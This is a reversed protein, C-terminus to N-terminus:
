ERVIEIGSVVPMAAEGAPRTRPLLELVLSDAAEVGKLERVLARAAGGSEKFIDFNTLVDRGQLKVDFVRRGAKDNESEAFLLRVTYRASPAGAEALPIACRALGRAGCAFLWPDATGAFRAFDVDRCFWGGGDALKADFKLDLVLRETVIPRPYALWLTGDSARRDGPAGFNVALRRVPLAPGPASFMSWTRGTKKPAFAITTHVAFPCMCGSAAEPMLVLGCAPICNIWCGPRQAGFHATGSDDALDYYATSGSRFFLAGPAAGINGCHHGPRAMQWQDTVGTIPNRRERQAGTRLDYAWPEAIIQNEVILPRSRYGKRDSWLMRGDDAALAILSRRSFAGALFEKWFHGNWPQACLLLVGDAYMATLQGGASGITVCDSVYLPREWAKRGSQADLAVALRVDPKVPRGASDRRNESPVEKLAQEVQQPTAQQDVFFVRGAGIAITIPQISTGDHTWRVKGSDLEVAFIRQPGVTGYLLGGACALYHWSQQTGDAARPAKYSRVTRGTAADLRHVQDGVAVFLSDDSAALNSAQTKLGTRLAGPMQREWLFLGNYADYAMVVNEGQVFLRGGAALPSAASAHRSVMRGPGPEGFWLIGVPGRVRRDDSCATNGPEAYEHTWAGAGPLPGRAVKTWSDAAAAVTTAKDAAADLAKRVAAQQDPRLAGGQGAAGVNLCAVGGCPKLMRLLEEPALAPGGAQCAILNAFYDPYPLNKIDAQTVVVRAGYLGAASLAKRAAAAKEGDPEAVHIELETRRALEAALRVADPGLVLGYGRSAGAERVIREAARALAETQADKPFAEAAAAPAAQRGKGGKGQIFCHIAGSDTSVFLRGGAVAPGRAKGRVPASWTQKGDAPDLGVVVDAGGVVLM